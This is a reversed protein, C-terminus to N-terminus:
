QLIGKLDDRLSILESNTMSAVTDCLLHLKDSWSRSTVEYARRDIEPLRSYASGRDPNAIGCWLYDMTERVQKKDKMARQCIDRHEFGRRRGFKKLRCCLEAVDSKPVLKYEGDVEGKLIQDIHSVFTRTISEIMESISITRFVLMSQEDLHRQSKKSAFVKCENLTRKRVAKTKADSSQALFDMVNNCSAYGMRVIDEVDMVSYAIDDCAEVIYALPHRVGEALGTQDWVEHAINREREFIGFKKFGSLDNSFAPYKLSTALTACTLDLGFNGDLIQLRTLLRFTQCNSDFEAFDKLKIGRTKCWLRIAKEGPHGFPPTGLDHALGAAALLAPVTREAQLKDALEGFVDHRHDHALRVGISRALNSVELSHTLRTSISRNTDPPFLQTKDALRRTSTSSLIRDYDHEIEEACVHTGASAAQGCHRKRAIEKRRTSCLLKRWDLQSDPM